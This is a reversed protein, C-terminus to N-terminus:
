VVGTSQNRLEIRAAAVSAGSPDVATGRLAGTIQQAIAGAGALALLVPLTLAAARLTKWGFKLQRSKNSEAM